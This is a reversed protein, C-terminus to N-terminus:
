YPCGRLPKGSMRPGHIFWRGPDGPAPTGEAHRIHRPLWGQVEALRLLRGLLRPVLGMPEGDLRTMRRFHNDMARGLRGQFKAWVEDSIPEGGADLGIRRVQPRWIQGASSYLDCISLVGGLRRQVVRDPEGQLACSHGHLASRVLPHDQQRPCQSWPVVRVRGHAQLGIELPHLSSKDLSLSVWELDGQHRGFDRILCDYPRRSLHWHATQPGQYAYLMLYTMEYCEDWEQVAVYCPASELHGGYGSSSIDLYPTSGQPHDAQWNALLDKQTPQLIRLSGRTHRLCCHPLLWELSCPFYREFPHFYVIPAYRELVEQDLV